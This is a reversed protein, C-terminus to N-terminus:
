SISPMTAVLEDPVFKSCQTKSMNFRQYDTTCRAALSGETFMSCKWLHTTDVGFDKPHEGCREATSPEATPPFKSLIDYIPPIHFAIIFTFIIAVVMYLFGGVTFFRALGLTLTYATSMTFDYNIAHHTSNVSLRTRKRPLWSLFKQPLYSVKVYHYLDISIILIASLGFPLVITATLLASIARGARKRIFM